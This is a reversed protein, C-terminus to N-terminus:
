SLRHNKSIWAFEPIPWLKVVKRWQKL